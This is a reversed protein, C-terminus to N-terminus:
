RLLVQSVGWVTLAVAAAGVFLGVLGWLVPFQYWHPILKEAAASLTKASSALLDRQEAVLKVSEELLEVEQKRFRLQRGLSVVEDQKDLLMARFCLLDDDGCKLAVADAVAPAASAHIPNLSLSVTLACVLWFKTLHSLM